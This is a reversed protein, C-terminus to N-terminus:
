NLHDRVTVETYVVVGNKIDLKITGHGTKSQIDRLADIVFLCMMWANEMKRAANKVTAVTAPM